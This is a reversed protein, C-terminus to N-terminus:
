TSASPVVGARVCVRSGVHAPVHMSAPTAAHARSHVAVSGVGEGAQQHRTRAPSNTDRSPSFSIGNRSHGSLRPASPGSPGGAKSLRKRVRALRRCHPRPRRNWSKPTNLVPTNGNGVPHRLMASSDAHPRLLQSWRRRRWSAATAPAGAVLSSAVAAGGHSTGAMWAPESLKRAIFPSRHNGRAALAHSAGGSGALGRLTDMPWPTTRSTRHVQACARRPGAVASAELAPVASGLAAAVAPDCSRTADRWAESPAPPPGPDGGLQPPAAEAVPSSSPLPSDDTTACAGMDRSAEREDTADPVLVSAREGAATCTHCVTDSMTVRPTARARACRACVNGAAAGGAAAAATSGWPM